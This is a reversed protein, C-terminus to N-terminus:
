ISHQRSMIRHVLNQWGYTITLHGSGKEPLSFKKEGWVQAMAVAQDYDPIQKGSAMSRSRMSNNRLPYVITSSPHKSLTLTAIRKDKSLDLSLVDFRIVKGTKEEPSMFIAGPFLRLIASCKLHSSSRVM